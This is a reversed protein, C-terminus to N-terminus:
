GGFDLSCIACTEEEDETQDFWVGCDVCTRVGMALLQPKIDEVDVDLRDAIEELSFNRNVAYHAARQWVGM